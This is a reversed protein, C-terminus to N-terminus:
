VKQGKARLERIVSSLGNKDITRIAQTSLKLTVFRNEESFWFRKKVINPMFRCSTIGTINLGIGKKKKSIGRLAYTRGKVPKKGTIQCIKAM